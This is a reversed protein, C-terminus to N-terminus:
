SKTDFMKNLEFIDYLEKALGNIQSLKRVLKLTKTQKQEKILVVEKINALTRLASTLTINKKHVQLTRKVLAGLLLAIVCYFAHVRIKQDTWHFMPYWAIFSPNKMEKFADEIHHQSRYAAVIQENSWSHQDTFLIIKGLLTDKLRQYAKKDRRYSIKPLRGENTITVKILSKMHRLRLLENVQKQVSQKTPPNGGRSEGTHWKKLKAKLEALKDTRKRLERELTAVQKVFLKEHFTVVLTREQGFVVKRTRYVSTGQWRVSESSEEEAVPTFAEKAIELLEPHHSTVLSGVFHVEPVSDLSQWAEASNNGKDLVITISECQQQFSKLRLVLEDVLSRFSVSDVVNGAYVKHFLPLHFEETVLLALSVQRLDNRHQKNRGRQALESAANFTDIFNFFNTADYILCRLDLNFKRILKQSLELEIAEIAQESVTDMHDWFRQSTLHSPEVEPMLRVLSTTTFWDALARKSRPCVARNIAALLLYHGVSLGQNRKPLHKNFLELLRLDQAISFFLAVPGFESVEITDPESVEEAAKLKQAISNASGLYKQWVIRPKGDVRRSEVLYYYPKGKVLKKVLSAM